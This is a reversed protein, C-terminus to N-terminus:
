GQRRVVMRAQSQGAKAHGRFNCLNFCGSQFALCQFTSVRPIHCQFVNRPAKREANWRRHAKLDLGGTASPSTQRELDRCCCGNM